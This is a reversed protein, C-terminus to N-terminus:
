TFEGDRRSKTSFGRKAVDERGEVGELGIMTRASTFEGETVDDGARGPATFPAAGGRDCVIGGGAALCGAATRGAAGECGLAGVDAADAGPVGV